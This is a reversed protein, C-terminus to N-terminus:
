ERGAEILSKLSVDGMEIPEFALLDAIAKQRAAGNLDDSHDM